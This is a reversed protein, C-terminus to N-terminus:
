RGDRSENEMEPAPIEDFDPIDAGPLDGTCAVLALQAILTMRNM